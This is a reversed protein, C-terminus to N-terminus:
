DLDACNISLSSDDVVLNADAAAVKRALLRATHARGGPTNLFPATTTVEAKSPTNGNFELSREAGTDVPPNANDLTVVFRYQNGIGGPNNADASGTVTCNHLPAEVINFTKSVLTKWVTSSTVPVNATTTAGNGIDEPRLRTLPM